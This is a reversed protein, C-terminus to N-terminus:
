GGNNNYIKIFNSLVVLAELLGLGRQWEAIVEAANRRLETVADGQRRITRVVVVGGSYGPRGDRELRRRLGAAQVVWVRLRQAPPALLLLIVAHDDSRVVQLLEVVQVL